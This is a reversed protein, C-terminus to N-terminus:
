SELPSEAPFLFRQQMLKAVADAPLPRSVFYGQVEECALAQVAALQAATEVGEAVVRMQLAHAMSVIAKFLAADNDSNNLQSTFARDIKLGDMDLRKLQALCSYGTGFDDVYLRIGAQQIAALQQMAAGDEAVTASETIEVQLLRADLRNAQLAGALMDGLDGADLQQASVNISVPVLPLGQRKWRALQACAMRAVEMGLPVILGTKEALPIFENPAILGQVPHNWRVLAEMSTIEGSDSRVRPQYHLLLEGNQIALKLEAERNLRTVLRRELEPEFFRYSGKRAGKAAYMAIDAHKLLTEGDAGDEPFLSVGVSAHVLHQRKAGSLVFPQWLTDIVRQAVAAVEERTQAAQVIITFEDGGLRAVRDEPRIVANLRLAAAKLLEDGAAHGLTDNINKFDDLDVFMVALMRGAERAQEMAAPLYSTLWHRNPLSTLADANAIQELAEQHLRTETIDRLTVALGASTRVLRRQLWQIFKNERQPLQIEDEYLGDAMAQRCAALMHSEFLTPLMASLTKGILAERAMGRYMAGRENCDEILFDVIERSPGYLPRLMYFGERANETAIRYSEHVERLHHARWVRLATHRMCGAAILVLVLSGIGAILQIERYRPLYAEQLAGEFVGVISVLPYGKVTHWAVIRAKGDKYRATDRVTAGTPETVPSTNRFIPDNVRFGNRSKAAVFSGDTNRISVFDDQGLKTDDVFSVLFEPDVAIALVGAFGGDADEIRRSLIMVNRESVISKMPNSIALAKSPSAAHAQFYGRSAVGQRSKPEALTSTLLMGNQDFVSISIRAAAPVLGADVQEELRLAGGNKQRYFLLSQMIYDLQGISREIQDAYTRAQASTNAFARDHLDRQEYHITSAAWFWLGAILLACAAPWPALSPAHGRLLGIKQQLSLIQPTAIM